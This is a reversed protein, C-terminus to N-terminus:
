EESSVDYWASVWDQAKQQVLVIMDYCLDIVGLCALLSVTMFTVYMSVGFYPKIMSTVIFLGFNIGTLVRIDGIFVERQSTQLLPDSDSPSSRRLELIQQGHSGTLGLLAICIISFLLFLPTGLFFNITQWVFGFWIGGLFQSSTFHRLGSWGIVAGDGFDIHMEMDMELYDDEKAM